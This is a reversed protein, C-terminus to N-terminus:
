STNMTVIMFIKSSYYIFASLPSIEILVEGKVDPRVIFV